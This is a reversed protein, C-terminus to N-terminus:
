SSLPPSGAGNEEVVEDVAEDPEAEEEEIQKLARVAAPGGPEEINREIIVLAALFPAPAEGGADLGTGGMPTVHAVRWGRELEVNLTALGDSDTASTRVILARQELAMPDDPQIPPPSFAVVFHDRPSANLTATRAVM